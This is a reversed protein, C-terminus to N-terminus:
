ANNSEPMKLSKHLGNNMNAIGGNKINIRYEINGTFRGDRLQSLEDRIHNIYWEIKIDSM